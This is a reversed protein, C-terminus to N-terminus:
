ATAKTMSCSSDHVWGTGAYFRGGCEECQPAQPRRDVPGLMSELVQRVKSPFTHRVGRDLLDIVAQDVRAAGHEAVLSAITEDLESLLHPSASSLLLRRHSPAREPGAGGEGVGGGLGEGGATCLHDSQPPDGYCSEGVGEPTSASVSRRLAPHTYDVPEPCKSAVPHRPKQHEPFNPVQFYSRGDVEYRWLFGADELEDMLEDIVDETKEDNLPYIAAKILKVNDVGRGEDDAHTWLRVLTREAGDSLDAMVEHQCIDPKVSRIRAM